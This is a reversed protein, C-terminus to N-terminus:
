GGAGANEQVQGLLATPNAENVFQASVGKLVLAEIGDFCVLLKAKVCILSNEKGRCPHKLNKAEALNIQHGVIWLFDGAQLGAADKYGFAHRVGEWGVFVILTIQSSFRRTASM